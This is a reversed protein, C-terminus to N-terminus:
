RERKARYVEVTKFCRQTKAKGIVFMPLTEWLVNAAIMGTFQIKSLKGGTCKESKLHPIKESLCQYFLGFEDANYIDGPLTKEFWPNIM